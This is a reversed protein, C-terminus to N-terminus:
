IQGNEKKKLTILDTALESILNERQQLTKELEAIKAKAKSDSAKQVKANSKSKRGLIEAGNEFLDKRWLYIANPHVDYKDALESIPTNGELHERLIKMKDTNSYRKTAM